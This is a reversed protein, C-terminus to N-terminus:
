SIIGARLLPPAFIQTRERTLESQYCANRHYRAVAVLKGAASYPHL